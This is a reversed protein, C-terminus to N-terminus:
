IHQVRFTHVDSEPCLRSLAAPVLRVRTNMQGYHLWRHIIHCALIHRCSADEIWVSMPMQQSERPGQETYRRRASLRLFHLIVWKTSDANWKKSHQGSVRQHALTLLVYSSVACQSASSALNNFYRSVQLHRWAVELCRTQKTGSSSPLSKVLHTTGPLYTCRIWPLTQKTGSSSPPSPYENCRITAMQPHHPMGSYAWLICRRLGFQCPCRNPNGLVRNLTDEEQVSGWLVCFLGSPRIRMGNRVTSEQFESILWRSCSTPLFPVRCGNWFKTWTNVSPGASSRGLPLTNFYISVQLHWWAVELCRTQKTGGSSPLSKVLHTTGPLHTCRIWPLTQKTGSSSPPSPYENCRTTYPLVQVHKQLSQLIRYYISIHKHLNQGIRYYQFTNTCAKYYVTTSSHTEALKTTYPLIPVHKHLSQLIRYYQFTNTCGKYYVTTSSRTQALKTTYPLVPVHKHM